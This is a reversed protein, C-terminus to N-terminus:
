AQPANRDALADEIAALRDAIRTLGAELERAHPADRDRQASGILTATVASTVVTIFGIGMCMIIAGIVRGETHRPVVDGYGVTTVTQLSWWLADGLSPFDGPDVLRAIVGGFAAALVIFGAIALAPARLILARREARALVIQPLPQKAGFAAATRQSVTPAEGGMSREKRMTM